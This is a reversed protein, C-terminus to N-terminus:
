RLGHEDYGLIEDEPRDDLVPLAACRKGIAMLEDALGPIPGRWIFRPQARLADGVVQTVTQGRREALNRVLQEIEPDDIKLMAKPGM